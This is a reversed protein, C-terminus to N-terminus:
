RAVATNSPSVGGPCTMPCNRSTKCSRSSFRRSRPRPPGRYAESGGLDDLADFFDASHEGFAVVHVGQPRGAAAVSVFALHYDGDEVVVECIRRYLDGETTAQVVADSGGVATRLAREAQKRDTVDRATVVIGAVDPDDLLNNDLVNLCLWRGSPMHTWFDHSAMPAKTTVRQQWNDKARELDDPVVLTFLNTGILAEAKVGFLDEVAGALFTITGDADAVVVVDHSKALLAEFRRKHRASAKSM